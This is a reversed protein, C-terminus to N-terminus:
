LNIEYHVVLRELGAKILAAGAAMAQVPSKYGMYARGADELTPTRESAVSYDECILVLMWQLTRSPQPRGTVPCSVVGVAKCANWWRTHADHRRDEPGRAEYARGFKDYEWRVVQQSAPTGGASTLEGYRATVRTGSHGMSFDAYFQRAAEVFSPADEKSIQGRRIMAEVIPVHRWVESRQDRGAGTTVSVREFDGRSAVREPTPANTEAISDASIGDGDMLGLPDGARRLRQNASRIRDRTTEDDVLLVDIASEIAAKICPELAGTPALGIADDAGADDGTAIMTSTETM